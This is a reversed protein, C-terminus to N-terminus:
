KKQLAKFAGVFVVVGVFGGFIWALNKYKSNERELQTQLYKQEQMETQLNENETKLNETAELYSKLSADYVAKKEPSGLTEYAENVTKTILDAFEKQEENVKDPHAIKIFNNRHNKVEEISAFNPLRLAAYLNNM